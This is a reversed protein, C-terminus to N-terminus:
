ARLVLLTALNRKAQTNGILIGRTLWLRQMATIVDEHVPGIIRM